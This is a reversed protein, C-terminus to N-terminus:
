CVVEMDTLVCFGACLERLSRLRNKIAQILLRLLKHPPIYEIVIPITKGVDEERFFAYSIQDSFWQTAGEKTGWPLIFSDENDTRRIKLLSNKFEQTVEEIDIGFSINYKFGDTTNSTQSRLCSIEFELFTRPSVTGNPTYSNDRDYGYFTNFLGSGLDVHLKGVHLTYYGMVIKRGTLLLRKLM